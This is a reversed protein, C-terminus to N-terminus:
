YDQHSEHTTSELGGLEFYTSVTHGILSVGGAAFVTGSATHLHMLCPDTGCWGVCLQARGVQVQHIVGFLGISQNGHTGRKRFRARTLAPNRMIEM